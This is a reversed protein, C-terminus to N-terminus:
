TCHLFLPSGVGLKREHCSLSANHTVLHLWIRFASDQGPVSEVTIHGGLQEVLMQAISLGLGTGQRNRAPDARYFREFIHPLDKPEIGIGTDRVQLMAQGDMQELSVTVCGKGAEDSAPTYKIANDLLILIVRRLMEEDGRVRIPEIHGVELRLKSGEASLRRRLQRVLQLLAHDLEVLPAQAPRAAGPTPAEQSTGRGDANADARALLLLDDVLRALRLTEAHADALMTRREEPSVEELHRQLFALNGQVTTLPARLEHSADAVFRRQTQSARELAALMENLTDVVQALEDKGGPRPVRQSLAGLRYGGATSAVIAHATSSIAGLPRLVRAAILWGGALAGALIVLGGLLLLRWLLDFTSDVDSLSKTVLLVGIVPGSGTPAGDTDIGGNSVSSDPARVPVVEVRIYEGNAQADYWSVQGALAAQIAEPRAPIISAPGNTSIYRVQGRGDQVEVIVGPDHYIDVINLTLQEPWYPPTPALERRLNITALRAEARLANDTNQRNADLTLLLILVSFVVLAVTLLAGYWLALRLRLSHPVSQRLLLPRRKSM